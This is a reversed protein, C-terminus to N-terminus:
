LYVEDDYYNIIANIYFGVDDLSYPFFFNGDVGVNLGYKTIKRKEHIHGFLNYMNGVDTICRSPEHCLNLSIKKLTDDNFIPNPLHFNFTRVIIFGKERLHQLYQAISDGEYIHVALDDREYNGLILIHDGNLNKVMDINGFDGLHFTVDNEHVVSNFNEVLTKDMLETDFIGDHIFPLRRSFKIARESGYHEDSTFFVNDYEKDFLIVSM